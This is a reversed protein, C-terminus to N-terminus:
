GGTYIGIISLAPIEYIAFLCNDAHPPDTTPRRTVKMDFYSNDIIRGPKPQLQLHIHNDLDINYTSAISHISPTTHCPSVIHQSVCHFLLASSINTLNSYHQLPYCSEINATTLPIGLNIPYRNHLNAGSISLFMNDTNQLGLFVDQM